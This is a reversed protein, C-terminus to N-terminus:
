CWSHVLDQFWRLEFVVQIHNRRINIWYHGYKDHEQASRRCPQDVDSRPFIVIWRSRHTLNGKMINFCLALIDTNFKNEPKGNTPYMGKRPLFSCSSKAFSALLYPSM